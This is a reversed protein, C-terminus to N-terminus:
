VSSILERVIYDIFLQGKPTAAIHNNQQALLGEAYLKKIQPTLDEQTQASLRHLDLGKKPRLGGSLTEMLIQDKSLSELKYRETMPANLYGAPNLAGVTSIRKSANSPTNLTLRGHAGPGLGIWDAGQWYLANHVAEHGAKAHNSVEYGPLGHQATIKQTLTYLDASLDDHAPQWDQRAVAHAFATGPEITLQYLSLHTAGQGIAEGLRQAWQEPTETPLAYILDFTVKDFSKLSLSLAQYAEEGSHNRGLFSLQQDDFSQIGLSLRNIGASRFAKFRTAEADTPNAELTIEATNSMHFYQAVTDIVRGILTPSMLSPTGGGFYLSVMERQGLLDAFHAIDETFVQLWRSEDVQRQKAVNFDCYPCIKTCYPWHIYLGTPPPAMM